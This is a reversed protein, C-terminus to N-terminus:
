SVQRATGRLRGIWRSVEPLLSRERAVKKSPALSVLQRHADAKWRRIGLEDGLARSIERLRSRARSWQGAVGLGEIELLVQRAALPDGAAVLVDAAAHIVRGRDAPDGYRLCAAAYDRLAGKRDGRRRRAAAREELAVAAVEFDGKRVARRLVRGLGRESDSSLLALGVEAMLTLRADPGEFRRVRRYLSRARDLDGGKRSIRAAHLILEADDAAVEMAADLVRAAGSLRRRRELFGAWLLLADELGSSAELAEVVQLFAEREPDQLTGLERAVRRFLFERDSGDPSRVLRLVLGGTPSLDDDAAPSSRGASPARAIQLPRTTM